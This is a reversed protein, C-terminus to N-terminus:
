NRGQKSLVFNRILTRTEESNEEFFEVSRSSLGMEYRRIKEIEAALDLKHENQDRSNFTRSLIAMESGLRYHEAIIRESTVAGEGLKAIGGFGFKIGKSKIINGLYEVIGESVLEFM